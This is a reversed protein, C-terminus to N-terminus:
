VTGNRTLLTPVWETCYWEMSTAALMSGVFEKETTLPVILSMARSERAMRFPVAPEAPQYVEATM